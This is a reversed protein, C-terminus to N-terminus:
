RQCNCFFVGVAAWFREKKAVGKMLMLLPISLVLDLVVRVLLLEEAVPAASAAAAAEVAADAVADM